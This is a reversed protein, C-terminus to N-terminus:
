AEEHANVATPRETPQRVRVLYTLGLVFLTFVTVALLSIAAVLAAMMYNGVEVYDVVSRAHTVTTHLVGLALLAVLSRRRLLRDMSEFNALVWVSFVAIVTGLVAVGLQFAAYSTDRSTPSLTWIALISLLFLISSGATPVSLAIVLFAHALSIRSAERAFWLRM